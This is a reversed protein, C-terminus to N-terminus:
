AHDQKARVLGLGTDHDYAVVDAPVSVGDEGSVTVESAELILYGITLILGNGDIVVGSGARETGLTEALRAEPRVKAYLRVVADIVDDAQEARVPAALMVAVAILAAAYGAWASKM